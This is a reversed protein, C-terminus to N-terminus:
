IYLCYPQQRLERLGKLERLEQVDGKVGKVGKVGGGLFFLCFGNIFICILSYSFASSAM